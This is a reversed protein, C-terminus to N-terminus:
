IAPIRNLPGYPTAQQLIGVSCACRCVVYVAMGSEGM